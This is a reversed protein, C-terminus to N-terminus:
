VRSKAYTYNIVFTAKTKSNTYERHRMMHFAFSADRTSSDFTVYAVRETGRPTTHNVIKVHPYTEHVIDNKGKGTRVSLTNKSTSFPQFENKIFKEDMHPLLSSSRLVNHSLGPEVDHALAAEVHINIHTAKEEHQAQQEPTLKIPPLTILPPLQEEIIPCQKAEEEDMLDAWSKGSPQSSFIVEEQPAVWNPDEYKRIRPTGDPNRGLVMHYVKPNFVRVFGRGTRVGKKKVMNILFRTQYEAGMAAAASFATQLAASLQEQTVLPHVKVTLTHEDSSVILSM